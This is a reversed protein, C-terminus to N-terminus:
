VKILVLFLSKNTYSYKKLYQFFLLLLCIKVIPEYPLRFAKICTTLHKCYTGNIYQKISNNIEPATPRNSNEEATDIDTGNKMPFSM